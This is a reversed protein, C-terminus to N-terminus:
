LAVKGQSFLNSQIRDIFNTSNKSFTEQLLQTQQFM